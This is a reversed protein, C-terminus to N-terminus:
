ETGAGGKLRQVIRAHAAANTEGGEWGRTDIRGRLNEIRSSTTPHSSFWSMVAPVKGEQDKLKRFFRPLGRPDWGGRHLYGLGLEDAEDEDGRSNASLFGQGAIQAAIQELLSPDKGLAISALAGYGYTYIMQRAAHRAVVHGIEHGVVGAVEAEDEAELLLGSYVYVHGGPTAM